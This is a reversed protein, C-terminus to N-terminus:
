AYASSGFIIVGLSYWIALSGLLADEPRSDRLSALVAFVIAAVFVCLAYTRSSASLSLGLLMVSGFFGILFAFWVFVGGLVEGGM